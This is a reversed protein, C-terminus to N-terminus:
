LVAVLVMDMRRVMRIIRQMVLGMCDWETSVRNLEAMEEACHWALHRETVPVSLSSQRVMQGMTRALGVVEIQLNGVRQVPPHLAAQWTGAPGFLLVSTVLM